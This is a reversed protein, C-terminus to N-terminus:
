CLRNSPTRRERVRVIGENGCTRRLLINSEISEHTTRSHRPSFGPWSAARNKRKVRQQGKAPDATSGEGSSSLRPRAPLCPERTRPSVRCCACVRHSGGSAAMRMASSHCVRENRRSCGRWSPWRCRHRQFRFSAPLLGGPEEITEGSLELGEDTQTFTLAQGLDAYRGAYEAVQAAPLDVTPKDAGVLLAPLLGIKGVLPALEPIEALAANLAARAALSGGGQGNTLVVLAFDHEPIVLLEAHQGLTDGGHYFARVGEVDQVFWDKGMQLPLGPFRDRTGADPGPEGASRSTTRAATRRSMHFRAYRLLDSTTSWIGGAPDVSRPVWLPTQVAVSIRGNIPLAAHGDSYPRQVVEDHDLVSEELGVPGFLLNQMAVNYTTGTAIEILRGLVTFAANNYSFFEGLPFIQPLQPLREAVYRALSDDNVGMPFGEDGYWGASHDLLNSITVREAVNEDM